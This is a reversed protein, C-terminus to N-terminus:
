RTCAVSCHLSYQQSVTSVCVSWNVYMYMYRVVETDDTDDTDTNNHGTFTSWEAPTWGGSHVPVM